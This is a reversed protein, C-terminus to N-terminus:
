KQWGDYKSFEAIWMEFAEIKNLTSKIDVRGYWISAGVMYIMQCIM